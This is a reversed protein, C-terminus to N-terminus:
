RLGPDSRIEVEKEDMASKLHAGVEIGTRCMDVSPQVLSMWSVDPNGYLVKAEYLGKVQGPVALAFPGLQSTGEAAGEFMEPFAYAPAMTRAVLSVARQEERLYLTMFFGGGVGLGHANHLGNCLLSAVAADVAHGARRLVDRDCVDNSGKDSKIL